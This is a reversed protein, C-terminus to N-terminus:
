CSSDRSETDEDPKALSTFMFYYPNQLFSTAYSPPPTPQRTPLIVSMGWTARLAAAPPLHTPSACRQPTMCASSSSPRPTSPAANRGSAACARRSPSRACPSSTTAPNTSCPRTALTHLPTPPSLTTM